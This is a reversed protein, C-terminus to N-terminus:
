DGAALKLDQEIKRAWPTESVECLASSLSLFRATKQGWPETKSGQLIEVSKARLDSESKSVADVEFGVTFGLTIRDAQSADGYVANAARSRLWIGFHPVGSILVTAYGDGPTYDVDLELKERYFSVAADLDEVIEAIGAIHRIM